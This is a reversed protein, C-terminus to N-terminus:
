TYCVKTVTFLSFIIAVNYPELRNQYFDSYCGVSNYDMKHMWSLQKILVRTVFKKLHGHRKSNFCFTTMLLMAINTNKLSKLHAHFILAKYFSLICCFILQKFLRFLSM